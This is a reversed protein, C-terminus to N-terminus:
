DHGVVLMQIGTQRVAEAKQPFGGEVGSNKTILWQIDYQRILAANLEASFPGYMAIIHRHPLGAAECAAIGEHSPLIRVYLRDRDLEALDGLNKSGTTVLINGPKGCLYGSAEKVSSVRIGEGNDEVRRKRNELRVKKKDCAARVFRSIQRAYPHTADICLEFGELLNEIEEESRRGCIVSIGPIGRLEEEGLKTATSVTVEHGEGALKAALLRGETTGGFLLIKM